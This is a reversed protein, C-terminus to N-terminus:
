LRSSAPWPSRQFLQLNQREMRPIKNEQAVQENNEISNFKENGFCFIPTFLILIFLVIIIRKM